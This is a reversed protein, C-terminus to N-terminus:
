CNVLKPFRVGKSLVVVGHVHSVYGKVYGKWILTTITCEAGKIHVTIRGDALKEAFNDSGNWVLSIATGFATIPIQTPKFIDPLAACAAVTKRFLMLHVLLKIEEAVVYLGMRLLFCEYNKLQASYEKINGTKAASFMKKYLKAVIPYEDYMKASPLLKRLLFKVPVLSVLIKQRQSHHRKLTLDFAKELSSLAAEYQGEGSQLRGYYYLYIVADSKPVTDVSPMEALKFRFADSVAKALDTKELEFYTSYLQGVFFYVGVTKSRGPIECRDNLCAKFADSVARATKELRKEPQPEALDAIKALKRVDKCVGKLAPLVWRDEQATVRILARLMALAADFALSVEKQVLHAYCKYHELAVSHWREGLVSPPKSPQRSLLLAQRLAQGNEDRIAVSLSM